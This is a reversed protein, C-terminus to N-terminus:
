SATHQNKNPSVCLAIYPQLKFPTGDMMLSFSGPHIRNLVDCFSFFLLEQEMCKLVFCFVPLLDFCHSLQTECIVASLNTMMILLIILGM